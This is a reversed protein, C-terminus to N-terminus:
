ANPKKKKSERIIKEKIAAETWKGIKKEGNGLHAILEGHVDPCISINKRNSKM